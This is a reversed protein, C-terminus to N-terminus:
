LLCLVFVLVDESLFRVVREDLVFEFTGGDIFVKILKECKCM